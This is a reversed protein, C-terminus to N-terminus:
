TRVAWYLLHIVVFNGLFLIKMKEKQFGIALIQTSEHTEGNQITTHEIVNM